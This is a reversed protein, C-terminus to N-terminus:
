APLGALWAAAPAVLITQDENRHLSYTAAQAVVQIAPVRLQRQIALLAKAPTTDSLKAEVLFLPQRDRAVLFDVELGDKTRVFHVSFDGLGWATWASTARALELAVLNEFRIGPQEIRAPDFLYTKREKHIARALRDTWTPMSFTLYFREFLGLWAQVTTYAVKLDTALAPLSLPSGVRGPLLAFLTELDAVRRVDALERVDERVLARTYTQSWRRWTRKTGALFPEPFGSCQELTKWVQQKWSLDDLNVKLPDALFRAVADELDDAAVGQGAALEGLTFPWLQFALYRGALSDGGAQFLDLRGSGTVLFQYAGGFEDYVGKLYNKWDSYKHLEDFVVMPPTPDRRPMATFFTPDNILRARDADIDWNCYLRNAFSAAIAKAVTTKGCQRPGAVLVMAKDQALSRWLNQWPARDNMGDLNARM